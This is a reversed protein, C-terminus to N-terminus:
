SIKLIFESLIAIEKLEQKISPGDPESLLNGYRNFNYALRRLTDQLIPLNKNRLYQDKKNRLYQDQM